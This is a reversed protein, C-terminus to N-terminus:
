YRRWLGHHTSPRLHANSPALAPDPPTPPRPIPCQQTSPHFSPLVSLPRLAAPHVPARTFLLFLLTFRRPFAGGQMQLLVVGEDFGKYIIDGGDEQVAPRIRTDLLEKIMMVVEDDDEDYGLAAGVSLPFPLPFDSKFM